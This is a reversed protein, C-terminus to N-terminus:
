ASPRKPRTESREFHEWRAAIEAHEPVNQLYARRWGPDSIRGARSMLEQCGARLAAQAQPGNQLLAFVDGCTLYALIPFEMGEGRTELLYAWLENTHQRALEPQDLVLACRALGAVTDNELAPMALAELGERAAAYNQMARTFEQCTEQNLALYILGVARGFQDGVSSLTQLAPELVEASLAHNGMRWHVLGLNLQAYAQYQRAGIAQCLHLSEELATLAAAYEGLQAYGYGLNINGVAEGSYWGLRHATIIQEQILEQARSLDGVESYHVAVNTVVRALTEDDDIQQALELAEEACSAASELDGLRTHSIASLALNLAVLRHEACSRAAAIAARYAQLAEREEGRTFASTGLRYYAEALWREDGAAQALALLDQDDAQRAASEGLLGLVENRGLLLRWRRERDSEPLRELARNYFQLAQQSAGQSKAREGARLYWGAAQDSDGARDYHEAILALHEDTRGSAQTIEVLWAAAIAHDRQRDRKLVTEYAVERLLTQRFAYEAVGQFASVSNPHVLGRRSLAELEANPPEPAVLMIQLPQDWFTRGIVAARQLVNKEMPPLGDLRAQLVATLTPPIRLDALRSLDINWGAGDDGTLIVVDDQGATVLDDSTYIVGDDSTYIVGDDILMNILEEIYYPNGEAQRVIIELLREPVQDVGALIAQVLRRCHAETLPMLELRSCEAMGLPGAPQWEPHTELLLRRALGIVLLPYDDLEAVLRQIFELSPKDAWHIDDILIMAPTSRALNAFYQVLYFLGRQNIQQPESLVGNLHPSLSYDYGLLAGIFHAKMQADEDLYLLLGTELKQRAQDAPDSELIDFRRAFLERLLSYPSALTQPTARATFAHLKAPQQAMWAEFAELLRSKGVGAEGLITVLRARRGQFTAQYAEQLIALEEERGVLPTHVGRIGRGAAHFPRPSLRLVLYTQVPQEVGKVHIPPQALLEFRGRVLQHTNESILVGGVPAASEMRRALNIAMGMITNEAEVGSGFLIQGTNIGVRINFGSLRWTEEVQRAYDQAAQVLALGARVAREADDEAAIPIGFVAKLGDGMFRTVRGGHAEIVAKFRELAGNMIEMTDEPDLGQGLRTSDVIDTFLASAYKLQQAPKQRSAQLAHLKERLPALAADVTTDGLLSRQSELLAIARELAQIESM